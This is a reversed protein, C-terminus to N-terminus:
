ATERRPLKRIAAGVEAEAVALDYAAQLNMWFQPTTGLWHALRLATDATIARHGNVIQSVRNAPVGLAKAAATLTMGLEALEEALVTGPHIAFNKM